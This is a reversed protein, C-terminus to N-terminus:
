SMLLTFFNGSSTSESFIWGTNNSTLAYWTNAPSANSYSINAYSVDVTGGGTLVLNHTAATLSSITVINGATGNITFGSMTTTEGATFAVTHAVTKTSSLTGLTFNGEFETLSISTNGGIVINGYTLNGGRFNRSTTTNNALLITSNSSIITANSSNDMNWMAGALNLTVTINSINITRLNSNNSSVSGVTVAYGSADFGGTSITMARTPSNLIGNLIVPNTSTITVPVDFTVGNTTFTQSAGTGVFTTQAAGSACTMGAGLTLNGSVTRVGSNLTGTFGTFNLDRCSGSINVTDTGSAFNFSVSNAVSLTGVSLTRTSAASGTCNVVQNGTFSLNTTIASTWITGTTGTIIIQGSTGFALTRTATGTFSFTQATLTQDNLNLTVTALGGTVSTVSPNYGTDVTVTFGTGSNADFTVTDAAGPVSEGGAGGTTAAWNTTNSSSWTGTGGVWFRAAM